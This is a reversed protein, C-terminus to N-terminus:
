FKKPFQKVIGSALADAIMYIHKKMDDWTKAEASFDKINVQDIQAIHQAGHAMLLDVLTQKPWNPNASSLFTAIEEANKKIKEVAAGKADTNGAFAATMYDKIAGYHGALLGFLKDSADKGYLPAIADAIARADEVVKSEAVKAADADGYKTALVVNRVWFIHGVWLDRLALQLEVSKHNFKVAAKKESAFSDTATLVMLAGLVLVAMKLLRKKM